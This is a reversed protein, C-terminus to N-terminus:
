LMSLRQVVWRGQLLRYAEGPGHTRRDAPGGAVSQFIGPRLTQSVCAGNWPNIGLQTESLVPQEELFIPSLAGVAKAFWDRYPNNLSELQNWGNKEIM